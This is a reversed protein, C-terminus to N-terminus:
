RRSLEKSRTKDLPAGAVTLFRTLRDWRKLMYDFAKGMGSNPEIAKDQLKTDMWDKLGAPLPGSNQQHFALREDPSMGQEKAVADHHYVKALVEIVYRSEEPFDNIEAVFNRRGHGSSM